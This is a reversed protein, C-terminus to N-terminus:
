QQEEENTSTSEKNRKVIEIRQKIKQIVLIGVALGVGFIDTKMGPRILLLAAAAMGIRFVVGIRIFTRGQLASALCVVGVVATIFSTFIRFPTGITLLSPGYVFMYPVIFAALGLWLARYATEFPKSGALAAATYSALAVPLTIVALAGFYFIFMHAALLPVGMEVLAPAVMVALVIYCASPPLGMGLIISTIMTLILAIMLSGGSAKIILSSLTLGIGTLTTIGVVIGACACAIAVPVANRIGEIIATALRDLKILRNKKRFLSVAITAFLSFIGARMPSADLYFLFFLLVFVPFVLYGSKKLTIWPNPLQEKPLGSLGLNKAVFGVQFFVSIFYLIAPIAAAIIIKSYSTGTFEIMIFAAAGMIPPMLIGGTSAVAEVAGAFAPPYGRKKMMPITFSGTSAVNATAAGSLMGFFASTIVAVKAPGGTKHGAMGYAIDNFFDGVGSAKLFSAFLIFVVIYTSSVGLPIGFIGESSIFLHSVIRRTNYGRHALLGPLYPGVYAYLIFVLAIIPLSWGLSRRSGELILAVTSVGFLFDAPVPNGQRYVLAMYNTAVYVMVSIALLSLLIDLIQLFVKKKEDKESSALFAIVLAFSLHAMRQLMPTLIGFIATYIHFLGMAIACFQWIRTLAKDFTPLIRKM